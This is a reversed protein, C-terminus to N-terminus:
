KSQVQIYISQVEIYKSQMQIYELQMQIYELGASRALQSRQQTKWQNVLATAEGEGLGEECMSRVLEVREEIDADVIPFIIPDDNPRLVCKWQARSPSVSETGGYQHLRNNLTLKNSLMIQLCLRRPHHYICRRIHTIYIYFYMYMYM